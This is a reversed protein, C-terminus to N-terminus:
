ELLEREPREAVAPLAGEPALRRTSVAVSLQHQGGGGRIVGRLPTVDGFDRGVALRVHGNSPVLNNTPDLDLWANEDGLGGAGGGDLGFVGPTRPCWVQVWAHSADAGVMATGGAASGATGDATGGAPTADPAHTLLYGSVYRAPLGLMRLAGAMLHAFDQCVGTKRSWVEALPTDIRTSQSVYAFDAHVRQMLDLAAEAIPRGPPFSPLAYDHLAMLRPVFPSPLAYEVAPQFPANATYRLGAALADWAPSAQPLLGEFRPAVRVRSRSRVWLRSHTQMLSFHRLANGQSDVGNHSQEPKPEVDLEFNLLTQFGDQLPQLHSLHHALSVPAAYDYRTEHTVELTLDNASEAGFTSTVAANSASSM